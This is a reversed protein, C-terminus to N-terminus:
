GVDSDNESLNDSDYEYNLDRLPWPNYTTNSISGSEAQNMRRQKFCNVPFLVGTGPDDPVELEFLHAMSEVLYTIDEEM